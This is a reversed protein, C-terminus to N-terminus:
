YFVRWIYTNDMVTNNLWWWKDGSFMVALRLIFASIYIALAGGLVGLAGGLVTNVLGVLPVRNLGTFLRALSRAFFSALTFLVLFCLAKLLTMVPDRLAVDIITDAVNEAVNDPSLAAIQEASSGMMRRLIGPIAGLIDAKGAGGSSFTQNLRRTLTHLLADRVINDYLFKALPTNAM